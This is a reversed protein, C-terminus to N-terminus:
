TNYINMLNKLFNVTNEKLSISLLLLKCVLQIEPQHFSHCGLQVPGEGGGGNLLSSASKERSELRCIVLRCNELRCGAELCVPIPFCPLSLSLTVDPLYNRRHQSPPPPTIYMYAISVLYMCILVTLYFNVINRMEFFCDVNLYGPFKNRQQLFLVLGWITSFIPFALFM